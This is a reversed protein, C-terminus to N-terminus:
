EYRGYPSGDKRKHAVPKDGEAVQFSVTATKGPEIKVTGRQPEGQAQWAVVPYEGPPVGTIKFKGQRDTTAFHHTPVVLVRSSMEPHINCFVDVVGERKFEVAKTAGSRYLGLDFRAPRSTSFVNHFIRDSNPFDITTGKVVVSVRPNFQLDQQKIVHKRGDDLSTRQVGELYVVVNSFNDKKSGNKTVVVQGEVSGDASTGTSVSPRALFCMAAGLVVLTLRAKHM